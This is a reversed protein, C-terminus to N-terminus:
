DAWELDVSLVKGDASNATVSIRVIAGDLRSKPWRAGSEDVIDSIKATVVYQLVGTASTRVLLEVLSPFASYQQGDILFGLRVKSVPTSSNPAFTADFWIGSDSVVTLLQSEGYESGEPKFLVPNSIGNSLVDDL